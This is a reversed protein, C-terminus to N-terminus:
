ITLLWHLVLLVPTFALGLCVPGCVRSLKQVASLVDVSCSLLACSSLSQKCFMDSLPNMDLNCLSSWCSLLLIWIIMLFPCLVQICMGESFFCLHSIPILYTVWIWQDNSFYFDLGCNSIVECRNSYRNKFCFLVFFIAGWELVIAQFIGRVSSGSPSCDMPDSLTPCSQTVKSESKVTMCQLLCHCGVGTNKGPSDWPRPLRTPQMPNCLTLCSQLSKAAAAYNIWIEM